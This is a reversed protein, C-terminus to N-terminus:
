DGYEQIHRVKVPELATNARLYAFEAKCLRLLRATHERQQRHAQQRTSVV